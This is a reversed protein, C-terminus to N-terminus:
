DAASAPALAASRDDSAGPSGGVELSSRHGACPRDGDAATLATAAGSSGGAKLSTAMLPPAPRASTWGVESRVEFARQAGPALPRQAPWV